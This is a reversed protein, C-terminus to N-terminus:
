RNHLHNWRAGFSDVDGFAEIHRWTSTKIYCMLLYQQLTHIYVCVCVCVCVYIYVYVCVYIYISMPIYECVCVCIYIRVYM